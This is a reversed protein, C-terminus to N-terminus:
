AAPGMIHRLAQIAAPNKPQAEAQRGFRVALRAAIPMRLLPLCSPSSVAIGLAEAIRGENLAARLHEFALAKVLARQRRALALRVSEASHQGAAAIIESNAAVMAGCTAVTLRHSTSGVHRRYAYGPSPELWYRLGALLLRVILNDDEAIRLQEDYGIGSSLLAERRFMPKLYGYDAGPKYIITQGLYHETSIWGPQTAPDLFFGAATRDDSDFLVLNDAVIDASEREAVAVLRALRDPAMLDDSDLIAVFQGRALAIARNRAAGPGSNRPL